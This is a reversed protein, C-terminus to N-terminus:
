LFQLTIHIHVIMCILKNTSYCQSLLCKFIFNLYYENWKSLIRIGTFLGKSSLNLNGNKRASIIIVESLEANDDNKTRKKFVASHYVKKKMDSM